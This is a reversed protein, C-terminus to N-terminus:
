WGSVVQREWPNSLSSGVVPISPAAVWEITSSRVLFHSTGSRLAEAHDTTRCRASPSRTEPLTAAAVDYEIPRRTSNGISLFMRNEGTPLREGELVLVFELVLVIHHPSAARHIETAEQGFVKRVGTRTINRVQFTRTSELNQM